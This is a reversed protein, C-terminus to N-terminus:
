GTVTPLSNLMFFFFEIIKFVYWSFIKFGNLSKALGTSALLTFFCLHIKRGVCAYMEIPM